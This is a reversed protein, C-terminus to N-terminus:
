SGEEARKGLSLRLQFPLREDLRQPPCASFRPEPTPSREPIVGARPRGSTQTLTSKSAHLDRLLDPVQKRRRGRFLKGGARFGLRSARFRLTIGACTRVVHCAGVPTVLASARRPWHEPSVGPAFSAVLLRRLERARSSGGSGRCM